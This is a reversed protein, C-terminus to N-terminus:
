HLTEYGEKGNIHNILYLGDNLNVIGDGNVDSLGETIDEYEQVLLAHNATYIGDELDVEGDENVDGNAMVNLQIAESTTSNGNTNVANIPFSYTWPLTGNPASTTISWVDDVINLMPAAESGGISSLDITVSQVGSTDTVTVSLNSTEGWRPDDDTDVPITSPNATPNTVSPAYANTEEITFTRASWESNSFQVYGDTDAQRTTFDVGDRKVLYYYGPKLDGVTFAVNNGDTTDTTFDVLIEGQPLSTNLKNLTIEASDTAPVATMSYTKIKFATYTGFVSMKSGTPYWRPTYDEKNGWLIDVIEFVKGDTYEVLGTSDGSNYLRFYYIDQQINRMIPNSCEQLFIDYHGVDGFYTNNYTNNILITDNSTTLVGANVNSHFVSNRIIARPSDTSVLVGSGVNSYSTFNIVTVDPVFVIMLGNGDSADYAVCDRLTVNHGYNAIFFNNMNRYSTSNSITSYSVAKFDIGNHGNDYATNNDLSINTCTHIAQDGISIGNWVNEYAMNNNVVSNNALLVMGCDSCSTFINNSINLHNSYEFRLGNFYNIFKLGSVNIYSREIGWIGLGSDDIGDLTPTGNYAKMTIPNGGTGSNAFEVHEDYWTGDMLYITDGAVAQQAAYSPRRWPEDISTGSNSDNGEPSVYYDTASVVGVGAFILVFLIVILGIKIFTYNRNM